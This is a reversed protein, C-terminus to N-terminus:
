QEPYIFNNVEYPVTKNYKQNLQDIFIRNEEFASESLFPYQVSRVKSFGNDSYITFDLAKILSDFFAKDKGKVGLTLEILDNDDKSLLHYPLKMDIHFGDVLKQENLSVMKEYNTGNTYIIIPKNSVKRVAELDHVLDDLSANLFEGGSFIIYETLDKQRIVYNVVDKITYYREQKNTILEEYNFCQFCHLSCGTLAHVLLSPHGDVESLTLILNKYYRIMPTAKM